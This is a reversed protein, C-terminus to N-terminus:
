NARESELLLQEIKKRIKAIYSQDFRFGMQRPDWDFKAVPMTDLFSFDVENREKFLGLDLAPLTLENGKPLDEYYLQDFNFWLQKSVFGEKLYIINFKGEKHTTITLAYKGNAKTTTEGLLVGNRKVLVTINKEKKGTDLNNLQGKM